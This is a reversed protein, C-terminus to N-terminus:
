LFIFLKFYAILLRGPKIRPQASVCICCVEHYPNLDLCSVPIKKSTGSSPIPLAAASHVPEKCMPKHAASLLWVM